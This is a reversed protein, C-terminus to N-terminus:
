MFQRAKRIGTLPPHLFCKQVPQQCIVGIAVRDSALNSVVSNDFCTVNEFVEVFVTIQLTM